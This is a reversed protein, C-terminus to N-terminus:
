RGKVSQVFLRRIFFSLAICLGFIIFVVYINAKLSAIVAGVGPLVLIVRGVVNAEYVIEKDPNTNNVGKTQFGRAGSDQYNEYIDIIKHTVSTAADRMFTINDGIEFEQPNTQRVLILSGKPIEDQMSSTLVTFYSYGMFMKREGDKQTSTLALLLITLVALYFLIDSIVALVRHRKRKVQEPQQTFIRKLNIGPKIEKPAGKNTVSVAQFEQIIEDLTKIRNIQSEVQETQFKQIM